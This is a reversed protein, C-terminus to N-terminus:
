LRFARALFTAMEQRSVARDPCFLNTSCGGTIGAKALANINRRHTGASAADRFQNADVPKLDLARVLFTAMEARTVARKPCYRGPQCGATVRERAVAGITKAHTSRPHVDSFSHPDGPAVQLARSLFSAMQERSVPDRPCFRTGSRNCGASIRTEAVGRIGPYHTSGRRVDAFDPVSRLTRRPAVLGSGFEADFGARGLDETNYALRARIQAPDYGPSLQRLLAATGAVMPASFSTGDYSGYRSSGALAAVVDVGPATLSIWRGHSAFSARRDKPTTASVGVVSPEAAPYVKDTTGYNGSAAVVVVGEREAYEVAERVAATRRTSGLSLNVIAAGRDVAYVIGNAVDSTSGAGNRNLVRVPLIRTAPGTAAIGVGNDTAAGIVSAVATGHGNPDILGQTGPALFDEGAVVRGDLDPHGADVGTDVVAVLQRSGNRTPVNGKGYLRDLYWQKGRLPDGDGFARVPQDLEATYGRDELRDVLGRAAARDAMVRVKTVPKGDVEEVYAVRLGADAQRAADAPPTAPQAAHAAPAVLPGVLLLAVGIPLLRAIAGIRAQDPM